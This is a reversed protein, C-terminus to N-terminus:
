NNCLDNLCGQLDSLVLLSCIPKEKLYYALATSFPFFCPSANICQLFGATSHQNDGDPFLWHPRSDARCVLMSSLRQCAYSAGWWHKNIMPTIHYQLQPPLKVSVLCTRLPKQSCDYSVKILWLDGNSRRLFQQYFQHHCLCLLSSIPGDVTLGLRSHLSQETANYSCVSYSSELISFPCMDGLKGIRSYWTHRCINILDQM